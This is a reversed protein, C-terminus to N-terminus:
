LAGVAKTSLPPDLLKRMFQTADRAEALVRLTLEEADDQGRRTDKGRGPERLDV